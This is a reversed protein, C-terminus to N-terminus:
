FIVQLEQDEDINDGMEDMGDLDKSDRRSGSESELISLNLILHIFKSYTLSFNM